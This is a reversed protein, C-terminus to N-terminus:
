FKLTLYQETWVQGWPLSYAHILVSKSVSTIVGRVQFFIQIFDMNYWHSLNDMWIMFLWTSKKCSTSSCMKEHMSTEIHFVGEDLYSLPWVVGADHQRSLTIPTRFLRLGNVYCPRVCIMWIRHLNDMRIVVLGLGGWIHEMLNCDPSNVSQGMKNM